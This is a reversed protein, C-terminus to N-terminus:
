TKREPQPACSIQTRKRQARSVAVRVLKMEVYGGESLVDEGVASAEGIDVAGGPSLELVGTGVVRDSHISLIEIDRLVAPLTGTEAPRHVPSIVAILAVAVRLAAM